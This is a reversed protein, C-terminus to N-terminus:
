RRLRSGARRKKRGFRPLAAGSTPRFQPAAKAPELGPVVSREVPRGTLREIDRLKGWDEPSVLSVAIGNEGARGTRGIRHIYDEAVSPLDFNIVHSIGKIDLGRAAVDTAVLIRLKGQKMRDMTKRRAGQPLDGHLPASDHGQAALISALRDATRKTATFILAQTLEDQQLYNNLLRHKHIFDDAHHVKQRILKHKVTNSTLQIRVPDRLLDRAITLVKGELTASFLLTQRKQPLQSAINRIAGIFGLDLMRDAEDLVFIDLSSYDLRGSNMHDLLRGPTAVLIDLPKELLRIQPPYPMGGIVNGCRFRCFRGLDRIHANVQAALERTPTLILVRPGKGGRRPTALLKQMAPLVFSATKGTGTQASALIDRGQLIEPISKRQIPTPEEFGCAAVARQLKNVLDLENFSEM